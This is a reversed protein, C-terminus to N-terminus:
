FRFRVLFSTFYADDSNPFAEGPQFWGATVAFDWGKLFKSGLVLDVEQGLNTQVGDPNTELSANRLFAAAEVQDYRHWVLDLSTRSAVRAGIGATLITLNSLEPDLLEGYYHFNSVGEWKGKNRELGTQRFSEDTTASDPDDGSGYAWGLTFSVPEAWPPSWTTGVDIADSSLNLDNSFGRLLSAEAWVKNQPIWAGLARAGFWIPYDREGPNDRRDIVYAAIERKPDGNSLYAILNDPTQEPDADSFRTSASLELRVGPRHWIARVADLNSRYLWQRADIFQQRGVQLDFGAVGVDSWYGWLEDLHADGTSQSRGNEQRRDELEFREIALAHFSESPLWALQGKLTLRQNTSDRDFSRDLDFDDERAIKYEILAGFSLEDTLRLNGPVYDEEQDKTPAGEIERQVQPALPLDALPTQSRITTRDPVIVPFDLVRLKLGEPIRDIQDIRGAVHDRGPDRPSINRAAVYRGRWHGEVKVRRGELRTLSLDQWRTRASVRVSRGLLEFTQAAVDVRSATGTLVETDAPPLAELANARFTGDNELQGRVEVWHGVRLEEPGQARGHLALVLAALGARRV